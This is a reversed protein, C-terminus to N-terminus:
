IWVVEIRRRFDLLLTSRDDERPRRAHAVLEGAQQSPINDHSLLTQWEWVAGSPHRHAPHLEARYRWAICIKRNPRAKRSITLWDVTLM